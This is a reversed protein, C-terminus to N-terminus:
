EPNLMEIVNGLNGDTEAPTIGLIESLLSYIDTNQFSPHIYAKKFDPGSAYFIGHMDSNTIDYGHTGGYSMKMPKKLSVSWGSDAVIIINGARQNKGYNLYVPVEEPKWVKINKVTKLSNYASDIWLSDMYLNFFPNSGEIRVPWSKPLYDALVINKDSSVSGMGHDSVVIFNICNGNPLNKLRSYLVGTLSDIEYVVDLTRPDDPGYDHGAGDPEEYYALILRPRNEPARSLWKVITDIRDIFPVSGDYMKWEDPHKGMIGVDTGVWFFSATILGQNQATIWIPEGGYFAPNFREKKDSMSYAKDFAPDYFSNNVIGHNDPYLGTAITYHNPFTKTPFSPILSVAKVGEKAIQNLTPTHTKEPYDWRFGDLSLILTSHNCNCQAYISQAQFLLILLLIGSIRVRQINYNM